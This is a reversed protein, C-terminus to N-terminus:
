PKTSTETTKFVESEPDCKACHEHIDCDCVGAIRVHTEKPEPKKRFIDGYNDSYAKSWTTRIVSM